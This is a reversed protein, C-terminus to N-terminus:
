PKSGAASGAANGAANISAGAANVAGSASGSAAGSADGSFDPKLDNLQNDLEQIRNRLQADTAQTGIRKLDTRLTQLQSRFQDAQPGQGRINAYEARLNTLRTNIANLEDRSNGTASNIATRFDTNFRDFGQLFNGGANVNNGISGLDAARPLQLQLVQQQGARNVILQVAGNQGVANQLSTMLQAQSTVPIGNLAVIRDNARLGSMAAWSGNTVQNVQLGNGVQTFTIGDNVGRFGAVVQQANGVAANAQGMASNAFDLSIQQTVGNRIISLNGTQATGAQLAGVLEQHSRIPTGDLSVIRDGLRLGARQALSGANLNTITLGNQAERVNVGLSRGANGAASAAGAVNTAGNLAGNNINGTAGAAANTAANVGNRQVQGAASGAAGAAANIANNGAQGTASGAANVGNRQVQGAANTAAGVGTNGVQGAASGAANVGNREVQGAANTAAGVGTNGIQGTAAGAAGGTVGTGPGVAGAASGAGGVGPGVVGGGINGAGSAAGGVGIGGVGVQASAVSGAFMMALAAIIRMTKIRM